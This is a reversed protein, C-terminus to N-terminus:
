IVKQKNEALAGLLLYRYMREKIASPANLKMRTLCADYQPNNRARLGKRFLSFM